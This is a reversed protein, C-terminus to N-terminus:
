ISFDITLTSGEDYIDNYVLGTDLEFMIIDEETPSDDDLFYNSFNIYDESIVGRLLPCVTKCNSFVVNLIEPEGVIKLAKDGHKLYGSPAVKDFATVIKCTSM